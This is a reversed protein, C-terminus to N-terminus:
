AARWANKSSTRRGSSLRMLKRSRAWHRWKRKSVNYMRSCYFLHFLKPSAPTWSSCLTSQVTPRTLHSWSSVQQHFRRCFTRIWCSAPADSAIEMRTTRTTRRRSKLTGSRRLARSWWRNLRSRWRAITSCRCFFISFPTLLLRSHIWAFYENNAKKVVQSDDQGKGGKDM